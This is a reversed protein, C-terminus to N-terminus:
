NVMFPKWSKRKWKKLEINVMGLYLKVQAKLPIRMEDASVWAKFDGTVGYVGTWNGKGAILYANTKYDVADLGIETKGKSFTLKTSSTDYGMITPVIISKDTNALQRILFILALGECLKGSIRISKEETVKKNIYKIFEIVPYNMSTVFLEKRNKDHNIKAELKYSCKFSKDIWSDYVVNAKLFPINDYTRLSARVHYTEKGNVTEQGITALKVEGITLGLFSVEYVLEEGSLFVGEGSKLESCFFIIFVIIIINYKNM